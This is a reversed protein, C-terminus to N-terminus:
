KFVRRADAKFIDFDDINVTVSDFDQTNCILEGRCTFYDSPGLIKLKGTALKKDKNLSEIEFFSFSLDGTSKKHPHNEIQIISYPKLRLAIDSLGMLENLTSEELKRMQKKILSSDVKSTILAEIESISEDIHDIKLKLRTIKRKLDSFEQTIFNLQAEEVLIPSIARTEFSDRAKQVFDIKSVEMFNSNTDFDRSSNIGLLHWSGNDKCMLPGGSDGVQLLAGPAKLGALQLTKHGDLRKFNKIEVNWARPFNSFPEKKKGLLQSFGFIGCKGQDPGKSKLQEFSLVEIPQVRIPTTLKITAVDFVPIAIDNIVVERNYQPHSTAEKAFHVEELNVGCFISQPMEKKLCHAATLITNSNLLVGSCVGKFHSSEKESFDLLCLNPSVESNPIVRGLGAYSHGCL